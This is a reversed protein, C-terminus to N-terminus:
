KNPVGLKELVHIAEEAIEEVIQAAPKEEKRAGCIQGGVPMTFDTMESDRVGELLDSVYVNQTPTPLIPGGKKIWNTEFQNKLLRLTKGTLVKTILTDDETAAFLKEKWNDVEWQSMYGFEIAELCAEKATVMTTGLWVGVAGLSLSAVLGRGNCIGGAALVPTPAIADVVQPILPMTGIRGTHGGAETGQAIIVDVGEAALRRAQRVLGICSMVKMGNDHAPGILWDPNGVASVFVPIKEELAIDFWEQVVKLSFAQLLAKGDGKPIGFEEGFKRAFEWQEETVFSRLTEEDADPPIDKLQTPIPADVGFPKDTLDKCRKIVERLEDPTFSATGIVGLGGANSVAAALAAGSVFGMGSLVIPYKIGFMDCFETHLISKKM